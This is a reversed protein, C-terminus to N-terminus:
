KSQFLELHNRLYRPRNTTISDIGIQLYEEAERKSNVTWVHVSKESKKLSRVFEENLKSHNQAGIGDADVANAISLIEDIGKEQHDFAILLNCNIKSERKKIEKIVEPYFSIVTILDIDKAQRYIDGLLFPVIEEGTKVEIFISKEKPLAILIEELKPIKEGKWSEGFRKGCDLSRAEELTMDKINKDFGTTRLASRDHHCVIM